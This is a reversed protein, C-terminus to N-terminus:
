RKRFVKHCNSCTTTVKAIAFMAAEGDKKKVAEALEVGGARLDTTFTSWEKQNMAPAKTHALDGTVAVQYGMMMMKETLDRVPVKSKMGLRHAYLERDIGWGGKPPFDFQNMLDPFRVHADILKVPETKAAPNAKLKPLADAQKRADAFKEKRIAEALKLAADRVTARQQADPGKLNTQAYAAIMVAATQAKRVNAEDDPDKLADKLGTLAYELLKPYDDEPVAVQGAALEVGAALGLALAIGQVALRFTTM